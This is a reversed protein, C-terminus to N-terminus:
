DRKPPDLGREKCYADICRDHVAHVWPRVALKVSWDDPGDHVPEGCQACAWTRPIPEGFQQGDEPM